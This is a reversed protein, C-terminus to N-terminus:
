QEICLQYKPRFTPHSNLYWDIEVLVQNSLLNNFSSIISKNSKQSLFKHDKITALIGSTKTNKCRFIKLSAGFVVAMTKNKIKHILIYKQNLRLSKDIM